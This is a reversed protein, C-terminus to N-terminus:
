KMNEQALEIDFTEDGGDTTLIAGISQKAKKHISVGSKDPNQTMVTM